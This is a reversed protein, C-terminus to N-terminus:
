KNEWTTYDDAITTDDLLFLCIKWSLFRFFINSHIDTSDTLLELM